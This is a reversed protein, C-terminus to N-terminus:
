DNNEYLFTEARNLLINRKFQGLQPELAKKVDEIKMGYQDAMKAFEFELEEDTVELGEAKIVAELIFYTVAEKRSDERIKEKFEDLSQGIISLYQELSLGSQMMRQTMDEVTHDVQAEVIEDPIEIKSTKAIAESLKNFYDRKANAEKGKALEAEQYKRLEEVTNVGAIEMEKVADDTLEPVVKEKVEHLVIHFRAEKGKLEEVYNEPFTVNIDFEEGAKHGVLQEEFGPIFSNSGLELEHNEAEGGEFPEDGIFGKFDMVVTDGLKAKRKRTVLTANNTLLKTIAENLEEESVLVEAKGVKLGKYKGLEVEPATVVVFKIQLEVDSLKTVDIQPNAYPIINEEKLSESYLSPLLGNIAEDMMKMMDIHKKAMEVPVTGKRFGDLVLDKALKAYAKEQAEKWTKEDVTVLIEVHCHELKKVERKM